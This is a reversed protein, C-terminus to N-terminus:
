IQIEEYQLDVPFPRSYYTKKPKLIINSKKHINNVEYSYDLSESSDHTQIAKISFEPSKLSLQNFIQLLEQHMQPHFDGM